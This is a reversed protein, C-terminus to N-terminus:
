RAQPQVQRRISDALSRISRWTMGAPTFTSHANDGYHGFDYGETSIGCVFWRNSAADRVMTWHLTDNAVRVTVVHRDAVHPDGEEQAVTVVWARAVATDPGRAASSLVRFAALTFIPEVQADVPCKDITDRLSPNPAGEASAGLFRNLTQEAAPVPIAITLSGAQAPDRQPTVVPPSSTSTDNASRSHGARPREACATLVVFTLLVRHDRL